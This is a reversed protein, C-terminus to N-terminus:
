RPPNAEIYPNPSRSAEANPDAVNADGILGIWLAEAAFQEDKTLPVGAFYRYAVVLYSRAFTPQVIGLRGAAYKELPVDPHLNFDSFPEPAESCSELVPALYFFSALFASCLCSRSVIKGFMCFGNRRRPSWWLIIRFTDRRRIARAFWHLLLCPPAHRFTPVPM